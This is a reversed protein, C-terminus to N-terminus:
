LDSDVTKVFIHGTAWMVNARYFIHGVHGIDLGGTEHKRPGSLEFAPGANFWCQNLTKHKGSASRISSSGEGEQDLDISTCVIFSIWLHCLLWWLWSVGHETRTYLLYSSTVPCNYHWDLTPGGDAVNVCSHGLNTHLAQIWQHTVSLCACTTLGKVNVVLYIFLDLNIFFTATFRGNIM